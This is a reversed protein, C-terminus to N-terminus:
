IARLYGSEELEQLLLHQIITEKATGPNELKMRKLFRHADEERTDHIFSKIIARVLHAPNNMLSKLKTLSKGLALEEDTFDTGLPFAPFYGQKQMKSIILTAHKPTNHTFSEPIQYRLEVKGAKKAGELLEKQFRSDTINLLAKVIAADCKGRLDAIGYETIVIDRLHRPITTHGYHPVINSKIEDGSGRTSRLCIVGRAGALAHGMSVFDYQGGVGSIVTGDELGDSTIAGALSVMMGSNIFRADKRQATLLPPNQTLQNIHCIGSMCISSAQEPTLDRLAQYFDKPGLFFGGHMYIGNQLTDGLCTNVIESLSVQNALDVSLSKDDICLADNTFTVSSKFVGWHKLYEVCRETLQPKIAEAELLKTLTDTSIKENIEGSNLLTQLTLDDYVKRKVIGAKILHMFGNVFMESSGYLGQTFRDKGGITEQLPSNTLAALIEQYVSNNEHRLKCSYVIADGLSGIGIQLTGGDAILSSAYLGILYDKPTVSGNPPAFLTTNYEPNRVIMDFFDEDVEARNLMFPLDDHIQAITVIKEGNARKQQLAPMIDLTTDTNCSLSLSVEGDVERRAVLQTLVNAGNLLM